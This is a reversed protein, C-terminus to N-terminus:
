RNFQFQVIISEIQRAIVWLLKSVILGGRYTNSGDDMPYTTRFVCVKNYHMLILVVYM